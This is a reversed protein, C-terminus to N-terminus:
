DNLQYERSVLQRCVEGKSEAEMELEGERM